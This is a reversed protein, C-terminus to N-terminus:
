QDGKPPCDKAAKKEAAENAQIQAALHEPSKFTVEPKVTGSVQAAVWWAPPAEPIGAAPAGTKTMASASWDLLKIVQASLLVGSVVGLIVWQHKPTAPDFTVALSTVTSFIAALLQVIAEPVDPWKMRMLRYALGTVAVLAALQGAQTSFDAWTM